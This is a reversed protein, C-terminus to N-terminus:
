GFRPDVVIKKKVESVKPNARLPEGPPIGPEAPVPNTPSIKVPPSDVGPNIKIEQKEEYDKVVPEVEKLYDTVVKEKDLDVKFEVREPQMVIKTTEENDKKTLTVKPDRKMDVNVEPEVINLFKKASEGTLVIDKGDSPAILENDNIAKEDETPEHTITKTEPPDVEFVEKEETLERKLKEIIESREDSELAELLELFSDAYDKAVENMKKTGKQLASNMILLTLLRAGAITMADGRLNAIKKLMFVDLQDDNETAM